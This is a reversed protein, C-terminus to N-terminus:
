QIKSVRVANPGKMGQEIEFSVKNGERIEEKLNNVHVFIKEKSDLDKIFGFGKTDNFFEVIGTRIPDDESQEKRPISLEITSPDIKEKEAPDPPTDIINGNADVYAIMDDLSGGKKANAKREERRQQKEKQKKLRNKEKEKKNFTQQSKAM